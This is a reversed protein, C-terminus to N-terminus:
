ESAAEETVNGDSGDVTEEESQTQPFSADSIDEDLDHEVPDAAIVPPPPLNRRAAPVHMPPQPLPEPPAQDPSPVIGAEEAAAGLRPHQTQQPPQPSGEDHAMTDQEM